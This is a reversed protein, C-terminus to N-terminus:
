IKRRTGGTLRKLQNTLTKRIFMWFPGSDSPYLLSKGGPSRLARLWGFLDEGAEKTHYLYGDEAIARYPEFVSPTNEIEMPLHMLSGVWLSPLYIGEYFLFSVIGSQRFNIENLMISNPTKFFDIDFLGRYGERSLVNLSSVIENLIIADTILRASATSGHGAPYVIEKEYARWILTGDLMILGVCTIEYEYDILEQVLASEYGSEIYIGVTRRYDEQNRCISIDSKDGEASVVPKVIVPYDIPSSSECDFDLFDLKVSQAVPIDHEAAWKAQANKDMLECIRWHEDGFGSANVGSPRFQEDIVLASLDSSPLMICSTPDSRGIWTGIVSRIAEYTGDTFLPKPAFKSSEAMTRHGSHVGHIILDFAIGERALARVSALTNAHDGGIVLM